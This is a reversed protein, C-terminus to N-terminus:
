KNIRVFTLIETLCDYLGKANTMLDVFFAIQFM